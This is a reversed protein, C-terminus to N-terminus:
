VINNLAVIVVLTITSLKPLIDINWMLYKERDHIDLNSIKLGEILVDDM